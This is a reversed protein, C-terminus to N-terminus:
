GGIHRETVPAHELMDSARIKVRQALMLKGQDVRQLVAAALVFKFTSCMPFREDQRQGLHWGTASDLLSIGLRGGTGREIKAWQARLMDDVNLAPSPAWAPRSAAFLVGAGTAHLFQRRNLM